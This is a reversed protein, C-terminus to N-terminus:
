ANTPGGPHQLQELQQRLRVRRTVDFAFVFIGVTQGNEQYAQYTFDLYVDQPEAAPRQIQLLVEKGEFTEGTRYVGDLLDLFGQEAAEPVVEQVSHGLLERDAFLEQYRPNAFEFVHQPGRLICILAPAQMFLRYFTERQGQALQAARYAQESLLLQQENAEMLELVLQKQEHVDIGSGVWMSVSGDPQLQPVTRAHVWRYQGDHRRMRFEAEYVEHAAIAQHWSDVLSALDDPHIVQPWAQALNEPYHGVFSVWRKNLYDITGDPQATWVLAPVAELTFLARQQAATLAQEAAHRQQEALYRATIDEPHQLIYLLEGNGDLIPYHTIQWYRQEFGGGEAEPRLLDYRTVPMTHPQKHQRVYEHSENLERQSEPASPYATFINRGVGQERPLMSVNVHRDSNDVITGDPLLLLYNHPLLRFLQQFDPTAPMPSPFSSRFFARARWVGAGFLPTLLLLCTRADLSVQGPANSGQM